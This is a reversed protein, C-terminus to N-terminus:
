SRESVELPESIKGEDKEGGQWDFRERFFLYAAGLFILGEILLELAYGLLFYPDHLRAPWSWPLPPKSFAIYIRTAWDVKYHFFYHLDAMRQFGGPILDPAVALMGTLLYGPASWDKDRWAVYGLALATTLIRLWSFSYAGLGIWLFLILWIRGAERNWRMLILTLAIGVVGVGLIFSANTKYARIAVIGEFHPIADLLYHSAFALPFALAWGWHGWRLRRLQQFIVTGVAAHTLPTM